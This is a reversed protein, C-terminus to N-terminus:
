VIQFAQLLAGAIPVGGFTEHTPRDIGGLAGSFFFRFDNRLGDFGDSLDFCEVRLEDFIHNLAKWGLVHLGYALGQLGCLKGVLDWCGVVSRRDDQGGNKALFEM